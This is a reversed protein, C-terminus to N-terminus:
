AGEVAKDILGSIDDAAPAAPTEAPAPVPAGQQELIQQVEPPVPAVSDAQQAERVSKMVDPALAAIMAQTLEPSIAGKEIMM